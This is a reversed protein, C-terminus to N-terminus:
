RLSCHADTLNPTKRDHTGVQNSKRRRVQESMSSEDDAGFKSFSQVVSNFFSDFFSNAFVM